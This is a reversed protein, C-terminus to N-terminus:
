LAAKLLQAVAYGEPALVVALDSGVAVVGGFFCIAACIFSVVSGVEFVERKKKEEEAWGRRCFSVGYRLFIPVVLLMSAGVCVKILSLTWIYQVFHPALEEVTTGLKEAMSRLADMASDM